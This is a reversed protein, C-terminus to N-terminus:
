VYMFKGSISIVNLICTGCFIRQLLVKAIFCWQLDKIKKQLKQCKKEHQRGVEPSEKTCKHIRKYVLQSTHANITKKMVKAVFNFSFNGRNPSTLSSM